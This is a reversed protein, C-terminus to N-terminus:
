LQKLQMIRNELIKIYNAIDDKTNVEKVESTKTKFTQEIESLTKRLDSNNNKYLYNFTNSGDVVYNFVLPSIESGRSAYNNTEVFNLVKEITRFEVGKKAVEINFYSKKEVVENYAISINFLFTLYEGDVQVINLLEKVENFNQEEITIEKVDKDM